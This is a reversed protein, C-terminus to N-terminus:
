RVQMDHKERFIRKDARDQERKIRRRERPTVVGDAKAAQKDAQIRGQQRELKRTERPTLEGSRVGQEIRAQQEMQKGTIAPTGQAFAVSALGLILSAIGLTRKM